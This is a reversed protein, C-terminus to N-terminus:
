GTLGAEACLPAYQGTCIEDLSWFGDAVVTDAINDITVAQPTLLVGDVDKFGNNVKNVVFGPEPAEGRGLIVALEAAKAAEDALAKYVTMTQEGTLLRQIAALEADQGTIPIVTPDLGAETLVLAVSAAIGDNAALVADFGDLGLVELADRMNAASVNYDWRETWYEQAVGVANNTDLVSRAGNNFQVANGDDLWGNILVIEGGGGGLAAVLAEAQLQGVLENEFSVFYDLDADAVLRDYSIVPIGADRATEVLPAAEASNVPDLVLVNIGLAILDDVQAAQVAADGDANLSTVICEPCLEAVTAEFAPRDQTEYRATDLEPLLLGIHPAEAEEPSCAGAALSLLMVVVVAQWPKRSRGM